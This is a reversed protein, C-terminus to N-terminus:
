RQSKTIESENSKLMGLSHMGEEPKKDCMVVDKVPKTEQVDLDATGKTVKQNM